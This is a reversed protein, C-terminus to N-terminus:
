NFLEIFENIQKEITINNVIFDRPKFTNLNNIFKNYITDFENIDTFKYGCTDDFYPASTCITKISGYQSEQGVEQSMSTADWVLIPVDCSLCEELAFGQSEHRGLWICYKSKHLYEIYESENYKQNYNFIKINLEKEKIRDLIFNLENINRQKFYITVYDKDVDKTNFKIHDVGFPYPRIPLNNFSYEDRWLSCVWESPQIYIANNFENSLRRVIDNPVVSFHPGFVFKKDPYKNTDIYESPSYIYNTDNINNTIEIGKINCGLQIALRNKDHIYGNMYLKKM